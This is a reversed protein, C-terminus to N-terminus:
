VKTNGSFMKGCLQKIFEINQLTNPGGKETTEAIIHSKAIQQEIKM